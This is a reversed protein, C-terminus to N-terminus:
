SKSTAKIINRWKDKLDVTSRVKHFTGAGFELIKKWPIIKDDPSCIKQMGEKLKEEEASTWPVRTRKLQPFSPYSYKTEQKRARIFYKSPESIEHETESIEEADSFEVNPSCKYEHSLDTDKSCSVGKKSRIEAHRESKRTVQRSEIEDHSKSIALSAMEHQGHVRPLQSVKGTRKMEQKDKNLTHPVGTTSDVDKGGFHRSDITGLVSPGAQEHELRKGRKSNYVKKKIERKNLENSGPLGDDQELHNRQENSEKGTGLCIFTALDNRALSANKKSKMYKSIARSYACFPCYFKGKTDFRADFGLCNEHIVLPCSNSCCFLLNDGKNCKVCLNLQREDTALSDQSSTCQSSLFANKMTAFDSMEVHYGIPAINQANQDLKAVDKNAVELEHFCEKGCEANHNDYDQRQEEEFKDNPVETEHHPTETECPFDEDHDALRKSSTFENNGDGPLEDQVLGGVDTREDVYGNSDSSAYVDEEGEGVNPNPVDRQGSTVFRVMEKDISRIECLGNSNGNLQKVSHDQVHEENSKDIPVETDGHHIQKDCPFVKDPVALGMSSPCESSNKGPLGKLETVAIHTEKELSCREEESCQVITTTSADAVKPDIVLSVVKAGLDQLNSIIDPKFKKVAEICTKRGDELIIQDKFSKREANETPASIKRKAPLLNKDPLNGRSFYNGNALVPSILQDNAACSQTNSNGELQPTITNSDGDNVPAGHDSQGGVPLGSQERLSALPPHSGILIADKLKQLSCKALGSRKHAIFPQIDWRLMEAVAAELNSESTEPLIKLLVDECRESLDLRIKPSSSLSISNADAGQFYISELIRLSVMERANRCIDNSLEPIKKVLDLLLSVDVQNSCTLIEFVWIWPLPSTCSLQCDMSSQKLADFVM